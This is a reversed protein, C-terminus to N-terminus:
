HEANSYVHIHLLTDGDTARLYQKKGLSDVEFEKPDWFLKVKPM